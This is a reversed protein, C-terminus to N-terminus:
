IHMIHLASDTREWNQNPLAAAKVDATANEDLTTSELVIAQQLTRRDYRSRNYRCRCACMFAVTQFDKRLEEPLCIPEKSM